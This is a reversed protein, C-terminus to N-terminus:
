GAPLDGNPLSSRMVLPMSLHWSSRVTSLMATSHPLHCTAHRRMNDRRALTLILAQSLSLFPLYGADRKQSHSHALALSLLSSLFHPINHALSLHSIPSSCTSYISALTAVNRTYSPTAYASLTHLKTPARRCKKGAMAFALLRRVTWDM